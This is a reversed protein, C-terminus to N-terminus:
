GTSSSKHTRACSRLPRRAGSGVCSAINNYGGQHPKYIQGNNVRPNGELEPGTGHGYQSLRHNRLHDRPVDAFALWKGRELLLVTKGAEALVCAAIGGGAGAGVVIADFKM